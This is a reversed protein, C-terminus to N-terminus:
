DTSPSSWFEFHLTALVVWGLGLWEAPVMKWVLATFLVAAAVSTMVRLAHNEADKMWSGFRRLATGYHILGAAALPVWAVPNPSAPDFVNFRGLAVLGVLGVTYAEHRFEALRRRLGLEFHLAALVVWGLGVWEAPVMKWVIAAFSLVASASAVLRLVSAESDSMRPQFKRLAM